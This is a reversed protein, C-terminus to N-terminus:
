PEKVSQEVASELAQKVVGDLRDFEPYVARAADAVSLGQRVMDAARSVDSDDFSFTLPEHRAVQAGLTDLRPRFDVTQLGAIKQGPIIGRWLAVLSLVLVIAALLRVRIASTAATFMLFSALLGVLGTTIMLGRYFLMFTSGAGPLAEPRTPPEVTTPPNSLAASVASITPNVARKWAPLRGTIDLWTSTRPAETTKNAFLFYAVAFVILFTVLFVGAVLLPLTGDGVTEVVAFVPQPLAASM